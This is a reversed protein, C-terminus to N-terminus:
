GQSRHVLGHRAQDLPKITVEDLNVHAPQETLWVALAGLDAPDLQRVGDFHKSAREMDGAYRKQQFDTNGLGPEVSVTRVGSGLAELRLTRMISSSAAKAACYDAGGAYNFNWAISGIHIFMGRSQLLQEWTGRIAALLGLTNVAFVDQWDVPNGHSIHRLDIAKGASYVVLDLEPWRAPDLDAPRTVDCTRFEHQHVASRPTTRAAITTQWGAAALAEAIGLGYGSSGGIILAKKM